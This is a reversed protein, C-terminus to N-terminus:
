LEEVEVADEDAMEDPWEADPSESQRQAELELTEAIELLTAVERPDLRRMVDCAPDVDVRLPRADM